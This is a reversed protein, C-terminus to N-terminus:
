QFLIKKRIGRSNVLDNKQRKEWWNSNAWVDTENNIVNLVTSWYNANSFTSPAATLQNPYIFVWCCFLLREINSVRIHAFADNPALNHCTFMFLVWIEDNIIVFMQKFYNQKNTFFFCWFSCRVTCFSHEADSYRNLPCLLPRSTLLIILIKIMIEM